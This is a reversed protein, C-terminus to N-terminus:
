ILQHFKLNLNESERMAKVNNSRLGKIDVIMSFYKNQYVFQISRVITASEDYFVKM